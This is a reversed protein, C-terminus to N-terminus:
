SSLNWFMQLHFCGCARVRIDLGTVLRVFMAVSYSLVLVASVGLLSHSLGHQKRGSEIIREVGSGKSGQVEVGGLWGRRKSQV